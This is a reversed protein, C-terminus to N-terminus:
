TVDLTKKSGLNIKTNNAEPLFRGQPDKERRCPPIWAEGEKNYRTGALSRDPYDGNLLHRSSGTM